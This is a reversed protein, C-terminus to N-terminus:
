VLQSTLCTRLHCGVAKVDGAAVNLDAVIVILAIVFACM